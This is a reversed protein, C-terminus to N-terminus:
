PDRRADLPWAVGGRASVLAGRSAGPRSPPDLLLVFPDEADASVPLVMVLRGEVLAAPTPGGHAGVWECPEDALPEPCIAPGAHWWVHVEAAGEAHHIALELLRSGALTRLAPHDRTVTWEGQWAGPRTPVRDAPDEQAPAGPALLLLLLAPLAAQRARALSTRAIEAKPASRFPAASTM